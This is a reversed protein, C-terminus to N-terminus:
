RAGAARTVGLSKYPARTDSLATELKRFRRWANWQEIALMMRGLLGATTSGEGVPMSGEPLLVNNKFGGSSHVSVLTLTQGEYPFAIEWAGYLRTDDAARAAAALGILGVVLTLCTLMRAYPTGKM